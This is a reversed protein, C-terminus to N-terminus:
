EEESGRLWFVVLVLCFLGGLIVAAPWYIVAVGLLIAALSGALMVSWVFQELWGM